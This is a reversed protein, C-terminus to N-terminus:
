QCNREPLRKAAYFCGKTFYYRTGYIVNLRPIEEDTGHFTVKINDSYINSWEETSQVDVFLEKNIRRATKSDTGMYVLSKGDSLAIIERRYDRYDLATLNKFTEISM